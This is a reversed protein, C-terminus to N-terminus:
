EKSELKTSTEEMKPLHEEAFIASNLRILESESNQVKNKLSKLEKGTRYKEGLYVMVFVLMGLIFAAVVPVFLQVSRKYLGPIITVEVINMNAVCFIGAYILVVLRIVSLISKLM